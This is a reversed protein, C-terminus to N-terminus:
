SLDDTMDVNLKSPSKNSYDLSQKPTAVKASSHQTGWYSQGCQRGHAQFPRHLFILGTNRFKVKCTLITAQSALFNSSLLYDTKSSVNLSFGDEGQKLRGCEEQIHIDVEHQQQKSEWHPIPVSHYKFWSDLAKASQRKFPHKTAGFSCM